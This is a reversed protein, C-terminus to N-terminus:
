IGGDDDIINKGCETSSANPAFFKSQLQANSDSQDSESTENSSDEEDAIGAETM